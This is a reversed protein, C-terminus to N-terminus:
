PTALSTGIASRRQRGHGDDLVIQSGEIAALQSGSPLKAGVFYRSGDATVVYPDAGSGVSVIRKPAAPTRPKSSGDLNVAVVKKLGQIDRMARSQIAASLQGEDGLHGEVRVRGDGEYNAAAEIGKLRLIESVDDAVAEGARVQVVAQPVESRIRTKLNAAASADPVVGKILMKGDAKETVAVEHMGMDKVVRDVQEIPAASKANAAQWYRQTGLLLLALVCVGVAGGLWWSRGRWREIVAAAVAPPTWGQPEDGDSLAITFMAEGLAIRAGPQISMPEGPAVSHGNVIVPTDVARVSLKSGDRTVLCHHRGVGADALIVECDAAHGVMLVDRRQLPRVAGTHFGGLLRLGMPESKSKAKAAKARPPSAAAAFVDNAADIDGIATESQALMM